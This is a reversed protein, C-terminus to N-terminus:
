NKKILKSGVQCHLCKKAECYRNKLQLLAQTEFASVPQVGLAKWKEIVSNNEPPLQELWELARDKLHPKNHQDGYVFLFPIVTNIVLTNVATEGLRKVSNKSPYNFKYHSNWYESAEVDFLQRIEKLSATELLQSFLGSSRHLLAALQALRITPFNVPRLRLFKWLHGEMPKLGYKKLLFAYESRLQLFYEDGLLEQHLLGAQGFLLAELQFLHDKHKGPISLPLSKALMEFPLANTKFGFNRAIFQYFTENWNYTNEALRQVIEGTKEQLREVLLRNFGIKLALHDVQHFQNQCAIWTQAALLKQYNELLHSPYSLPLTPIEGGTARTLPLDAHQVVHLIISDYAPDAQHNHREWDSASVHIEVNGAWLTDGIKIRANFFDPGADYNRRGPDIVEVSEGGTTKLNEATFLRQEWVFQLFEETMDM